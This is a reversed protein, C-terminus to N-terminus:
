HGRVSEEVMFFVFPVFFCPFLKMHNMTFSQDGHGCESMKLCARLCLRNETIGGSSVEGLASDSLM